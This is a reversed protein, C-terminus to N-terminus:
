QYMFKKYNQQIFEPSVHIYKMTVNIDRHGLIEKVASVDAGNHIMNTAMSHRMRHAFLNENMGAVVGLKHIVRQISRNTLRKIPFRETVFLAECNDQRSNLYKKLHIIARVSLFIYREANGKGKIKLREKQWDIDDKNIQSLESLRCGTAYLTELIADTRKDNYNDRIIELETLTLAKRLIREQKFPKIKLMPNDTIINEDVMWCFFSRLTSRVTELTSPKIGSNNQKRYEFYNIIDQKEIEQVKKHIFKCFLNLQLGYDYITTKSLNQLTKDRLFRKVNLTIDYKEPNNEVVTVFYKDLIEALENKAEFKNLQKNIVRETLETYLESNLNNM